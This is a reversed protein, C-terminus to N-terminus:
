DESNPVIKGTRHAPMGFRSKASCLRPDCVTALNLGGGLCYGNIMAVTPKPFRLIRDYVRKIRENYHAVAEASGREEEFKSIDAGSVFTKGGAGSLVLVRIDQDAEFDTLIEEAADWM